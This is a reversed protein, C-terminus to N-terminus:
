KAAAWRAVQEPGTAEGGVIVCRLAPLGVPDLLPLLAPALYGWTVEHYALFRQLRVPDSRDEEPVLCVTGGRLLVTFIDLVSM